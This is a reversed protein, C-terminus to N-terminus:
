TRLSLYFIYFMYVNYWSNRRLELRIKADKLWM